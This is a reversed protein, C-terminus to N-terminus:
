KVKVRLFFSPPAGDPTVTAKAKGDATRGLSVTLGGSSFASEDLKAAGEIGLAEVLRAGEGIEVGAINVVLGFAEATISSPEISEIVVDESAVPAAKAMLGPADLVYSLWANQSAKAAKHSLEKSNIWQRYETYLSPTTIKSTIKNDASGALAESVMDDTVAGTLEPIPDIWHAYYTVDGTVKTSSSIELGGNAATWWGGFDFDYRTAEPLTGLTTDYSLSTSTGGDGGNANFTITYKNATWHAYYTVNASVTTSASIQSGGSTATFWGAFTYGTRSPTPLPGVVSGDALWRTPASVMGGNANFDVSKLYAIKMGNWTGPITVGWGTSSPMVYAARSSNGVNFAGTGVSPADGEFVITKLASCGCFAYNEIKSVTSPVVITELGRCYWFAKFGISTITDPLIIQKIDRCEYFTYDGIVTVPSGSLTKPVSVVEGYNQIGPYVHDVDNNEYGAVRIRNYEYYFESVRWRVGDVTAWWWTTGAFVVHIMLCVAIAVINRRANM